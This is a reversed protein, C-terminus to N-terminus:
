VWVCVSELRVWLCSRLPYGYRWMYIWCNFCVRHSTYDQFVDLDVLFRWLTFMMRCLDM